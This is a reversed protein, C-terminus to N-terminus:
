VGAQLGLDLDLVAALTSPASAGALIAAVSATLPLVIGKDQALVALATASVAGELQRLADRVGGDVIFAQGLERHKRQSSVRRPILDGMGALGSFTSPAAGMVGGLRGAELLARVALLGQDTESFGAGAALGAALHGVNSFAGCLEVGVIDHTQHLRLPAGVTITRVANMAEDFRSALAANLHRGASADDLYLPGGIVVIKKWCTERRLVQHPLAGDVDVGRAAHLIVQDGCAAAAAARAVDIVAPAPVAVVVVTAGDVAGAASDVVRAGGRKLVERGDGSRAYGVIDIAAGSKQAARLMGLTGWALRGGGVVAVTFSRSSATPSSTM